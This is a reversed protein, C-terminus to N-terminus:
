IKGLAKKVFNYCSSWEGDIEQKVIEISPYYNSAKKNNLHNWYWIKGFYRPLLLYTKKGLAGALHANTNSCTIIIDCASILKVVSDIDEYYNINSELFIDHQNIFTIEEDALSYQLNIIEFKNRDIKEVLEPLSFSKDDSIKDATSKWSIGIKLKKTDFKWKEYTFHAISNFDVNNFDIYRLISAMNIKQIKGEDTKIHEINEPQSIVKIKENAINKEIFNKIKNQVIFNIRCDNEKQLNEIVRSFFITDGIGQEWFISLDFKKNINEIKLDDVQVQTAKIRFKYFDKSKEFERMHLYTLGLQYRAEYYESDLTIAKEFWPISKEYEQMQGYFSGIQFCTYPNNPNIKYAKECCNLASSIDRLKKYNVAQTLWLDPINQNMNAAKDLFELSKKWKRFGHNLLLGYNYHAMFNSPNIKIAELYNIESKKYEGIYNYLFGLGIYADINSNENRIIEEYIKIANDFENKRRLIRAMLLKARTNAQNERILIQCFYEADQIKNLEIKVNVINELMVPNKSFKLGKELCAEAQNFERKQIFILSLNLVAETENPKKKLIKKYIKEAADLNGNLCNNYAETIHKKIDM